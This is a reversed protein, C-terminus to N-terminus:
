DGCRAIGATARQREDQDGTEIAIELAATHNALAGPRGAAHLAEGLRNLSFAEGYRHGTARFIELAARCGDIAEDHRGVRTYVASLNSLASAQGYRHGVDRFTELAQRLHEIALSYSGLYLYEEGLNTLASAAGARDGIDDFMERAATLAEASGTHDGAQSRVNGLNTLVAATGHRDGLQRYRALAQELHEASDGIMGLRDEVIGLNSLTRAQGDRDATIGHLVLAERLRDAAADYRCLLRHVAGLNTLAHAEGQRDGIARAARVGHTHIALADTHHGSELYRYLVASLRVAHAPWGREAAFGCLDTLNPLEADLWARLRVPDTVQRLPVDIAGASPLHAHEAPYLRATAASAAGLYYDLLRDLANTREGAPEEESLETAYARLLDHMGYRDTPRRDVLHARVLLGLLYGATDVPLRGLAAAAPVDFDRGPHWGLMRLLRAADAPLHRYSWSLVVRLAARDDDGSELLRLRRQRDTLEHVLQALPTDPRNVALEGAVRLALPLRACQRALDATATPDVLVREGILTHLLFAADRAPLPELDLRRAGHLVVLGSLSDRSTVVVVCGPTGPLLPHVQGVSSANDLLILMRRGTLETRYRAARADQEVPIDHAAVGLAELFRTLADAASMPVDPDYGRLNVQLQGDPFEDRVRHGWHVALATKGVGATGCVAVIVTATSGRDDLLGDLEALETTRGTFGSVDAALQAPVTIARSPKAAVPQQQVLSAYADTLESGPQVGLEALLRARASEYVAIATARQGAGAHARVCLAQVGEDLPYAAASEILIPLLRQVQGIAILATAYGVLAQRREGLVAVVKPHGALAPLDALPSGEWLGLAAGFAEAVREQDNIKDAAEARSVLERFRELDVSGPPIRLAYGDGVTLISSERAYRGRNPDLLKRLHKVHTQIINTASPPPREGWLADVLDMRPVARGGALALLGLVARRAPPGLDLERGDCRAQVPGLVHVLVGWRSM